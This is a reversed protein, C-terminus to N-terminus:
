YKFEEGEEGGEHDVAQLYRGTPHDFYIGFPKSQRHKGLPPAKFLYGIKIKEFDNTTLLTPVTNYDAGGSRFDLQLKNKSNNYTCVYPDTHSLYVDPMRISELTYTGYYETVSPSAAPPAADSEASAGDTVTYNYKLLDSVNTVQTPETGFGNTYGFMTIIERLRQDWAKGAEYKTVLDTHILKLYASWNDIKEKQPSTSWGEIRRYFDLSTDELTTTGGNDTVTHLFYTKADDADDKWKSIKDKIEQLWPAIGPNDITTLTVKTGPALKLFPKEGETVPLMNNRPNNDRWYKTEQVDGKVGAFRVAHKTKPYNNLLPCEEKFMKLEDTKQMDKGSIQYKPTIGTLKLSADPYGIELEAKEHGAEYEIKVPGDPIDLTQDGLNGLNDFSFNRYYIIKAPDPIKVYEKQPTYENEAYSANQIENKIKITQGEQYLIVYPKGTRNSKNAPLKEPINQLNKTELNEQLYFTHGAQDWSSTIWSEIKTSQVFLDSQPGNDIGISVKLVKTNEPVKDKEFGIDFQVNKVSKSTFYLKKSAVGTKTIVTENDTTIIKYNGTSKGGDKDDFLFSKNTDVLVSFRLSNEMTDIGDVTLYTLDGSETKKAQINKGGVQKPYYKLEEGNEYSYFLSKKYLTVKKDDLDYLAKINNKLNDSITDFYKQILIDDEFESSFPRSITKVIEPSVNKLVIAVKDVDTLTTLLQEIIDKNTNVKEFALKFNKNELEYEKPPKGLLFPEIFKEFETSVSAIADLVIKFKNTDDNATTLLAKLEKSDDEFHNTTRRAARLIKEYKNQYNPDNLFGKWSESLTLDRLNSFGSYKRKLKESNEVDEKTLNQTNDELWGSSLWTIYAQVQGDAKEEFDKLDNASAVAKRVDDMNDARVVSEAAARDQIKQIVKTYLDGKNQADSQLAKFRSEFNVMRKDQYITIDPNADDSPARRDDFEPNAIFDKFETFEIKTKDQFEDIVRKKFQEYPVAGLVDIVKKDTESGGAETFAKTAARLGERKEAKELAELAKNYKEIMGKNASSNMFKEYDKSDPTAKLRNYEKIVPNNLEFDEVAKRAKQVANDSDEKAQKIAALAHERAALTMRTRVADVLEGTTMPRNHSRSVELALQQMDRPQGVNMLVAVEGLLFSFVSGKNYAGIYRKIKNRYADGAANGSDPVPGFAIAVKKRFAVDSEMKKLFGEARIIGEDSDYIDADNSTDEVFTRIEGSALSYTTFCSRVFCVLALLADAAGLLPQLSVLLSVYLSDLAFRLIWTFFGYTFFDGMALRQSGVGNLLRTFFNDYLFHELSFCAGNGDPSLEGWDARKGQLVNRLVRTIRQIAKTGSIAMEELDEFCDQPNGTSDSKKGSKFKKGVPPNGCKSASSSSTNTNSASSSGGRLGAAADGRAPLFVNMVYKLLASGSFLSMNPVKSAVMRMLDPIGGASMLKGISSTLMNLLSQGLKAGYGTLRGLIGSGGRLGARLRRSLGARLQRGRARLHSMTDGEALIEAGSPLGPTPM